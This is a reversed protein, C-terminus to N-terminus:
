RKLNGLNYAELTGSDKMLKNIAKTILSIDNRSHERDKFSFLSYYIPLYNNLFQDGTTVSIMWNDSCQCYRHSIARSILFIGRRDSVKFWISIRDHKLYECDFIEIGPLSNMLTVLEEMEPFISVEETTM